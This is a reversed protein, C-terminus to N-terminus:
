KVETEEVRINFAGATILEPRYETYVATVTAVSVSWYGQAGFETARGGDDMWWHWEQAYQNWTVVFFVAVLSALLRPLRTM